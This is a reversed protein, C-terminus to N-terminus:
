TCTGTCLEFPCLGLDFWESQIPNLISLINSSTCFLPALIKSSLAYLEIPDSSIMLTYLSYLFHTRLVGNSPHKSTSSVTSCHSSSSSSSSSLLSSFSSSYILCRKMANLFANHPNM